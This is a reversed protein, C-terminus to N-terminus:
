QRAGFAKLQGLLVLVPERNAAPPSVGVYTDLLAAADNLHLMALNYSAQENHPDIRLATEFRTRATSEDGEHYAIVGLRVQGTAFQPNAAILTEYQTRALDFRGSQYSVDAQRILRLTDLKQRSPASSCASLLVIGIIVTWQMRQM